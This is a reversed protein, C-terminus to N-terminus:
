AITNLFKEYFNRNLHRCEELFRSDALNGKSQDFKNIGELFYPPYKFHDFKVSWSIVKVRKGLLQAWYAGHYSDTVVTEGSGLFDVVTDFDMVNNKMHIDTNRKQYKSKFAHTFYVTEHKTEYTKDFASNMCTVCPLYYKEFGDIWDRIGVLSCQKIWNPYYVSEKSKQIHKRGFNHGIGWLVAHKPNKDIINQIHLQFKKHILGGGGVVVIQNNVPFDNHMLEGSTCNYFQFYRSPNCYYDGVNNDVKRHIEYTKM